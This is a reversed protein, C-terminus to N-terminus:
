TGSLRMQLSQMKQNTSNLTSNGPQKISFLSGENQYNADLGEIADNAENAENADNEKNLTHILQNKLNQPSTHQSQSLNFKITTSKESM